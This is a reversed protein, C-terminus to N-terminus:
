QLSCYNFSQLILTLSLYTDQAPFYTYRIFYVGSFKATTQAGIKSIQGFMARFLFM